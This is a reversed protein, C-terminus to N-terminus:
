LMVFNHFLEIIEHSIEAPDNVGGFLNIFTYNAHFFSVSNGWKVTYITFLSHKLNTWYITSKKNESARYYLMPCFTGFM